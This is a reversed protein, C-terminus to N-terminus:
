TGPWALGDYANRQDDFHLWWKTLWPEDIGVARSREVITARIERLLSSVRNEREPGRLANPDTQIRDLIEGIAPVILKGTPCVAAAVALWKCYPYALGDIVRACRIAYEVATLV